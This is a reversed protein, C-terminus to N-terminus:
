AVPTNCREMQPRAEKLSSLFRRAGSQAAVFDGEAALAGSLATYAEVKGAFATRCAEARARGAGKFRAPNILGALRGCREVGRQVQSAVAAETNGTVMGALGDVVAGEIDVCGGVAAPELSLFAITEPTPAVTRVEPVGCAALGSALLLALAARRVM